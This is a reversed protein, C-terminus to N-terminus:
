LTFAYCIEGRENRYPASNQLIFSVRVIRTGSRLQTNETITQQHLSMWSEEDESLIALAEPAACIVRYTDPRDGPTLQLEVPLSIKAWRPLLRRITTVYDGMRILTDEGVRLKRFERWESTTPDCYYSHNTSNLDELRYIGSTSTPEVSLHHRSITHIGEAAPPIIDGAKGIIISKETM